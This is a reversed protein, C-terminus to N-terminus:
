NFGHDEFDGQYKEKGKTEQRLGETESAANIIVSNRVMGVLLPIVMIAWVIPESVIVGMYGIAPALM